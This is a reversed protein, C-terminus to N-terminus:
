GRGVDLQLQEQGVRNGRHEIVHLYPLTRVTVSSRRHFMLGRAAAAGSSFSTASTADARDAAVVSSAIFGVCKM